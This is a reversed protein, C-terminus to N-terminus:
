NRWRVDCGPHQDKSVAGPHPADPPPPPRATHPTAPHPLVERLQTIIMDGQTMVDTFTYQFPLYGALLLANSRETDRQIQAPTRHYRTGYVEVVVPTGPFRFDVRVCRNSTRTLVQQTTPQPLDSMSILELFMRELYSHGGRQVDAGEIAAYLQAIGHRGSGRLAETRRLLSSETFRGDRLGSDLAITLHRLDAIRALDIMTRVPSTAPIGRTTSRDIPALTGIHTHIRAGRRTVYRGRPLSLHFPAGLAFGDFGHLAAATPGSAFVPDGIDTILRTLTALPSNDALPTTFSHPGSPIIFGNTVLTRLSAANIGYRAAEARTFSRANRPLSAMLQEFPTTNRRRVTHATETTHGTHTTHAAPPPTAAASM